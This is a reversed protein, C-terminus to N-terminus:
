KQMLKLIEGVSNINFLSGYAQMILVLLLKKGEDTQIFASNKSCQEELEKLFPVPNSPLSAMKFAEYLNKEM